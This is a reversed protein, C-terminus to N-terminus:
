SGSEDKDASKTTRKIEARLEAKKHVREIYNLIM